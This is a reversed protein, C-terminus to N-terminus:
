KQLWGSSAVIIGLRHQSMDLLCFCLNCLHKYLLNDIKSTKDVELDRHFNCVIMHLSKEFLSLVLLYQRIVYRLAPHRLDKVQTQTTHIM